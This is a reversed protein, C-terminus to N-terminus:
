KWSRNVLVTSFETGPFDDSTASRTIGLQVRETVPQRTPEPNRLPGRNRQECGREIGTGHKSPRQDGAPLTEQVRCSRTDIGRNRWAQGVRPAVPLLSRESNPRTVALNLGPAAQKIARLSRAAKWARLAVVCLGAQAPPNERFLEGLKLTNIERLVWTDIKVVHFNWLFNGACCVPLRVEATDASSLVGLPPIHKRAM